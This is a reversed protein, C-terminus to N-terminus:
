ISMGAIAGLGDELVYNLRVVEEKLAVNEDILDEYSLDPNISNLSIRRPGKTPPSYNSSSQSPPRSVDSGIGSDTASFKQEPLEMSPTMAPTEGLLKEMVAMRQRLLELEQSKDLLQESLMSITLEKTDRETELDTIRGKLRSEQKAALLACGCSSVVPSGPIGASETGTTRLNISERFSRSGSRDHQALSRIPSSEQVERASPLRNFLMSQPRIPRSDSKLNAGSRALNISLGRRHGAPAKTTKAAAEEAGSQLVLPIIDKSSRISNSRRLSSKAGAQSLSYASDSRSHSFPFVRNPAEKSCNFAM